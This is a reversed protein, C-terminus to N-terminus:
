YSGNKRRKEKMEVIERISMNGKVRGFEDAEFVLENKPPKPPPKPVLQRWAMAMYRAADAAHSSWDHRPRGLFVKKKEDYDERYQRLAEIGVACRDADIWVKPMSVRLANIGDMVKHDPVLLPNRGLSVMTEIRTRGTGLERVKADHPVFDAAVAYRKAV